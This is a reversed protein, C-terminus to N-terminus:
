YANPNPKRKSPLDPGYDPTVDKGRRVDYVAIEGRMKAATLASGVTPVQESADMHINDGVRWSGQHIDDRDGFHDRIERAHHRVHDLSFADVPHKIEPFRAGEANAASGVMYGRDPVNGSVASRSAGGALTQEHFAEDSLGNDTMGEAYRM